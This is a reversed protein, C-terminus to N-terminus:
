CNLLVKINDQARTNATAFSQPPGKALLLMNGGCPVGSMWARLRSTKLKKRGLTDKKPQGM